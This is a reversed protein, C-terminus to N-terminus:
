EGLPDTPHLQVMQLTKACARLLLQMEAVNYLNMNRFGIGGFLRVMERFLGEKEWNWVVLRGQLPPTFPPVLTLDEAPGIDFYYYKHGELSLDELHRFSGVFFIIQRVSGKPSKLYLARLTPLFPSFYRGIKSTFSPIDLRDIELRQVNSLELYKRNFQKPSFGKSDSRIRVIKVLPLFGFKHMYQIPTHRSLRQSWDDTIITLVPHISHVAAIYWSYCVQSCSRLTRLDSALYALITETTEQPLM